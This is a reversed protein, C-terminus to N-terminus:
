AKEETLPTSQWHIVAIEWENGSKKLRLVKRSRFSASKGKITTRSHM